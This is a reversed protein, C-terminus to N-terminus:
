VTLSGIATLKRCTNDASLQRNAAVHQITIRQFIRDPASLDGRAVGTRLLRIRRLQDIRLHHLAIKFFLSSSGASELANPRM